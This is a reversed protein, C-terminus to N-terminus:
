CLSEAFQILCATKHAAQSTVKVHLLSHWSNNRRPAEGDLGAAQVSKFYSDPFIGRLWATHFVSVRLLCRVQM